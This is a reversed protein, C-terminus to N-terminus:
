SFAKLEEKCLVIELMIEERVKNLWTLYRGKLYEDHYDYIDLELGGNFVHLHEMIDIYQIYLRHLQENTDKM